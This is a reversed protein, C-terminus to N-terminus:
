LRESNSVGFDPCNSYKLSRSTESTSNLFELVYRRVSLKCACNDVRQAMCYEFANIVSLRSAMGVRAKAAECRGGYFGSIIEEKLTQAMDPQAASGETKQFEEKAHRFIRVVIGGGVGIVVIQGARQRPQPTSAVQTLRGRNLSQSRAPILIGPMKRSRRAKCASWMYKKLFAPHWDSILPRRVCAGRCGCAGPNQAPGRKLQLVAFPTVAPKYQLNYM